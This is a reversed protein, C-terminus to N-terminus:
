QRRRSLRYVRQEKGSYTPGRRSTIPQCLAVQSRMCRQSVEMMQHRTEPVSYQLAIATVHNSPADRRSEIICPKCSNLRQWVQAVSQCEGYLGSSM